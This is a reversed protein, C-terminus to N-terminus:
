QPRLAARDLRVLKSDDRSTLWIADREVVIAKPSALDRAVVEPPRAGAVAVRV